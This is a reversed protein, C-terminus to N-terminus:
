GAQERHGDAKGPDPQKGQKIAALLRLVLTLGKGILFNTRFGADTLNRDLSTSDPRYRVLSTASRFICRIKKALSVQKTPPFFRYPTAWHLIPGGGSDYSEGAVGFVM